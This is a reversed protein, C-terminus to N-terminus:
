ARSAWFRVARLADSWAAESTAACSDGDEGVGGCFLRASPSVSSPATPTGSSNSANFTAVELALVSSTLNVTIPATSAAALLLPGLPPLMERDVGM